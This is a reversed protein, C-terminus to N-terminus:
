NSNKVCRVSFGLDKSSYGEFVGVANYSLGLGFALDSDGITDTSSWFNAYNGEYNFGDDYSFYYGAPLAGFGLGDTGNGGKGDKDKWGTTSKLVTGAKGAKQGALASLEKFEEKSPLHWGDPCVGRVTGIAECEKGYGCRAGDKSFIAASDMAAAWTYLRGYKECNEPNNEYCVSKATGHSYDFNLNEAMWVKDGIKVTKYTKGDRDDKMVGKTVKTSSESEDSDKSSKEDCASIGFAIAMTALITLFKFKM